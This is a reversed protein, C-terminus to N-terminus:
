RPNTIGNIRDNTINEILNDAKTTINSALDTLGLREAGKMIGALFTNLGLGIIVLFTVIVLIITLIGM